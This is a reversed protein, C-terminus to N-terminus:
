KNENEWYEITGYEEDYEKQKEQDQLTWGFCCPVFYMGLGLGLFIIALYVVGSLMLWTGVGISCLMILVFRGM